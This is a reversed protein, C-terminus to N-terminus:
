HERENAVERAGKIFSAVDSEPQRGGGRTTSKAYQIKKPVSKTSIVDREPSARMLTEEARRLIDDIDNMERDIIRKKISDEDERRVSILPKRILPKLLPRSHSM